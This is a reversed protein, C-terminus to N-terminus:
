LIAALNSSFFMTGTIFSESLGSLVVFGPILAVFSKSVATPVGDPMKIVFNKKLIFRYIETSLIGVLIAVFIGASGMFETPIVDHVTIAHKMGDPTITTSFPTAILFACLSIVGSTVADIGYREALRYAVGFATILGMMGFTAEQPILLKARVVESTILFQRDPNSGFYPFFAIILFFSGIIIMPMSLTIGDRLALLHKQNGIKAAVPVFHKELFQLFRNM